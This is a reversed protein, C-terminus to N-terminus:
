CSVPWPTPPTLYRDPRPDAMKVQLCSEPEAAVVTGISACLSWHLIFATHKFPKKM